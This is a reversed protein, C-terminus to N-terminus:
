MRKRELPPATLRELEALWHMADDRDNGCMDESPLLGGCCAPREPRGFILCRNDASLQVCRMGAPKGEPMGPIPSSISPATCCAGCDPRCQMVIFLFSIPGCQLASRPAPQEPNVVILKCHVHEAWPGPSVM